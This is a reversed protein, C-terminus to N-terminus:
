RSSLEEPALEVPVGYALALRRYMFTRTIELDLCPDVGAQMCAEISKAAEDLEGAHFLIGGIIAHISPEDANLTRAIDAHKKSAEFDQCAYSYWAANKHLFWDPVHASGFEKHAEVGLAAAKYARDNHGLLAWATARNLDLLVLDSGHALPRLHSLLILAERPYGRNCLQGALNAVSLAGQDNECQERLVDQIPHQELQQCAIDLPEVRQPAKRILAIGQFPPVPPSRYPQSRRVLILEAQGEGAQWSALAETAPFISRLSDPAMLDEDVCDDFCFGG